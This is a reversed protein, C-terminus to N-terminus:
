DGGLFDTVRGTVEVENEGEIDVAESVGATGAVEVDFLGCVMM